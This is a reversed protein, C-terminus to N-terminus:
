FAYEVGVMINQGASHKISKRGAQIDAIHDYKLFQYKATYGWHENIFKTIGVQAGFVPSQSTLDRDILARHPDSSWNLQSGGAIVGIYPNFESQNIQFNMSVYYASIKAMDLFATQYNATAFIAKNFRYKFGVEFLGGSNSLAGDNYQSADNPEAKVDVISAGASLFMGYHLINEEIIPEPMSISPELPSVFDGGAYIYTACCASLCLKLLPKENM